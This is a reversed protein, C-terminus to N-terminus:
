RKVLPNAPDIYDVTLINFFVLEAEIRNLASTCACVIDSVHKDSIDPTSQARAIAAQIQQRSQWFEMKIRERYWHSDLPICGLVAAFM